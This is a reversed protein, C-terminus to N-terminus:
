NISVTSFLVTKFPERQFHRVKTGKENGSFGLFTGSVNIYRFRECQVFYVAQFTQMLDRRPKFPGCNVEVFEIFNIGLFLYSLKKLTAFADIGIHKISNKEL